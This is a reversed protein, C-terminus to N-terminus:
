TVLRKGFHSKLRKMGDEINDCEIAIDLDSILIKLESKFREKQNSNLKELLNDNPSAPNICKVNWIWSFSRKIDLLTNYLAIDDRDDPSYKQTAWVSLAIGSPMKNKHNDAWAKLYKIIRRLQEEKGGSELYWSMLGRPDSEEWGDKTALYTKNSNEYLYYVPLDINFDGKYNLRICKQKYTTGGQTKNRVAKLVHQQLTRPEINPKRSFYVGLDVDYTNNKKVIMTKMKFSGQIFFGHVGLRKDLKFYSKIAKEVAKRASTLQKQRTKNLSIVKNYDLFTNNLNAM